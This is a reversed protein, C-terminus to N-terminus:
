WCGTSCRATSATSPAPTETSSVRPADGARGGLQGAARHHGRADALAESRAARQSFIGTAWWTIGFLLLSAVVFQVLPSAWPRRRASM